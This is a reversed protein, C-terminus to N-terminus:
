FKRGVALSFVWPNIGIKALRDGDLKARTEIRIHRVDANLFWHQGMDLDAGLQAAAGTSDSLSLKGLSSKEDYLFSHSIGLGAYPRFAAQPAFHYQLSLVPPLHKTKGVKGVGKLTIDHEIPLAGLLEVALHPTLMRGLTFSLQTADSVGVLDGTGAGTLDRAKDRVDVHSVGIRGFWDGQEMAHVHGVAGLGVAAAMALATHRVSRKM